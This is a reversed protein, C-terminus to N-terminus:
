CTQLWRWCLLNTIYRSYPSGNLAQGGPRLRLQHCWSKGIGDRLCPCHGGRVHADTIRHTAAAASPMPVGPNLLHRLTSTTGDPEVRVQGSHLVCSISTIKCVIDAHHPMDVQASCNSHQLWSTCSCSQGANM